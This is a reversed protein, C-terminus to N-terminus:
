NEADMMQPGALGVIKDLEHPPTDEQLSCTVHVWEAVKVEDRWSRSTLPGLVLLCSPKVGFNITPM